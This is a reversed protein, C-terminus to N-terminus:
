YIEIPLTSVPRYNKILQKNGKKLIPTINSIMFIKPFEGKRM